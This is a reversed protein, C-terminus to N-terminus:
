AGPKPTSDPDPPPSWFIHYKSIEVYGMRRYLLEERDM